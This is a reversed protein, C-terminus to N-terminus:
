KTDEEQYLSPAGRMECNRSQPRNQYKKQLRVNHVANLKFTHALSEQNAQNKACELKKAGNKMRYTCADCAFCVAQTRLYLIEKASEFLKYIVLELLYIIKFYSDFTFFSCM